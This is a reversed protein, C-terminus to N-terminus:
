NVSVRKPIPQHPDYNKQLIREVREEVQSFKISFDKFTEPYNSSTFYIEFAAFQNLKEMLKQKEIKSYSSQFIKRHTSKLKDMEKKIELFIYYCKESSAFYTIINRLKGKQIIEPDEKQFEDVYMAAHYCLSPENGSPLINNQEMEKFMEVNKTIRYINNWPLITQLTSLSFNLEVLNPKKEKYIYYEVAQNMLKTFILKDVFIANLDVKTFYYTAAELAYKHKFLFRNIYIRYERQRKNIDVLSYYIAAHSEKFSEYFFSIQKDFFINLSTVHQTYLTWSYDSEIDLGDIFYLVYKQVAFVPGFFTEMQYNIFDLVDGVSRSTCIHINSIYWTVVYEIRKAYDLLNFFTGENKVMKFLSDVWFTSIKMDFFGAFVSAIFDKTYREFIHIQLENIIKWIEGQFKQFKRLDFVHNENLDMLLSAVFSKDVCKRVLVHEAVIKEVLTNVDFSIKHRYTKQFTELATFFDSQKGLLSETKQHHKYYGEGIEYYNSENSRTSFSLIQYFYPNFTITFESLEKDADNLLKIFNNISDFSNYDLDKIGSINSIKNFLTAATKLSTSNFKRSEFIRKLSTEEKMRLFDALFITITDIEFSSRAFSLNRIHFDKTSLIFDIFFRNVTTLSSESEIPVAALRNRKKTFEYIVGVYYCKLNEISLDEVISNLKMEENIDKLMLEFVNKRTAETSHLKSNMKQFPNICKFFRTLSKKGKEIFINVIKLTDFFVVYSDRVIIAENLSIATLLNSSIILILCFYGHLEKWMTDNVISERLALFNLHNRGEMVTESIIEDLIEDLFHELYIKWIDAHLVDLQDFFIDLKAEDFARKLFALIKERIEDFLLFETEDDNLFDGLIDPRLPLIKLMFNDIYPVSSLLRLRPRSTEVALTKYLLELTNLDIEDEVELLRSSKSHFVKKLDNEKSTFIDKIRTKQNEDNMMGIILLECKSGLKSKYEEEYDLYETLSYIIRHYVWQEHEGFFRSFLLGFCFIGPYRKWLPDKTVFLKLFDRQSELKFIKQRLTEKEKTDFKKRTIEKILNAHIVGFINIFNMELYSKIALTRRSNCFDVYEEPHSKVLELNVPPLYAISGASHLKLNNEDAANSYSSTAKTSYAFSLFALLSFLIKM